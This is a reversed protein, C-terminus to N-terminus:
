IETAPHLRELIATHLRGNSTLFEGSEMSRRGSFDTMSGGAEEVIVWPAAMDWPGLNGELMGEAAGEAVLAHGWFDGYGRERWTAEVLSPWGTAVTSAAMDRISRYLVQADALQDVTSVALRRPEAGILAGSVWAGGGRSAHWRRGIAPASVVGLQVEDDVQAALLFAFLPIGRMFNHTSDIPDVYWRVSAGASELGFEEGHVGHAPYRDAIRERVMLEVAKDADTVFSGDDKRQATSGRQFAPLTLQDAADACELAFVLLAERETESGRRLSASWDVGFQEPRVM